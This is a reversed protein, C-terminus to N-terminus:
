SKSVGLKKIKQLLIEININYKTCAKEITIGGGCCFDIGFKKFVHASKINSSVIDAITLTKELNM